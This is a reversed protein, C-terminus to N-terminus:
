WRVDTVADAHRNRIEINEAGCVPMEIPMAVLRDCFRPFDDARQFLATVIVTGISPQPDNHRELRHTLLGGPGIGGWNATSM